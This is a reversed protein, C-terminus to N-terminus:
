AECAKAGFTRFAPNKRLPSLVPLMPSHGRCGRFFAVGFRVGLHSDCGRCVRRGGAECSANATGLLMVIHVVKKTKQSLCVIILEALCDLYSISAAKVRVAQWFGKGPSGAVIAIM